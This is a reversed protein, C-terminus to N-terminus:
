RSCCRTPFSEESDFSNTSLYQLCERCYHHGCPTAVIDFIGFKETCRTCVQESVDILPSRPEDAFMVVDACPDHVRSRLIELEDHLGMDIEDPLWDDDINGPGARSSSAIPPSRRRAFSEEDPLQRYLSTFASFYNGFVQHEPFGQQRRQMDRAREVEQRQLTVALRFDPISPSPEYYEDIQGRCM